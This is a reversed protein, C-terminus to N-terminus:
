PKPNLEEGQIALLRAQIRAMSQTAQSLEEMLERIEGPNPSPGLAKGGGPDPAAGELGHSGGNTKPDPALSQSGDGPGKAGQGRLTKTKVFTQTKSNVTQLSGGQSSISGRAQRIAKDYVSLAQEKSRLAPLRHYRAILQQASVPDIGALRLHESSVSKTAIKTRLTTILDQYTPWRHAM